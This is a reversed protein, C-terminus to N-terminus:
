YNGTSPLLSASPVAVSVCGDSESTFLLVPRRELPVQVDGPTDGRGSPPPSETHSVASSRRVNLSTPRPAPAVSLKAETPLKLKNELVPPATGVDVSARRDPSTSPQLGSIEMPSLLNNM